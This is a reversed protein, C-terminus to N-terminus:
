SVKDFVTRYITYYEDAPGEEKCGVRETETIIYRQMNELFDKDSSSIIPPLVAHKNIEQAAM